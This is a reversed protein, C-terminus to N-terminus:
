RTSKRVLEIRGFNDIDWELRPDDGEEWASWEAPMFPIDGIYVAILSWAQRLDLYDDIYFTAKIM